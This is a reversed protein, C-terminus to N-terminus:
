KKSVLVYSGRCQGCPTRCGGEKKEELSCLGRRVLFEIMPTLADIEINFLRALHQVSVVKESEITDRIAFLM